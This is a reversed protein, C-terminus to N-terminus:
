KNDGLVLKIKGIVESPVFHAKILYDKAGLSLGEDVEDKKGLNTLLIIPIDKIEKDGKAAKLVELGNMKPLVIDLLVLDPRKEKIMALGVEGDMAQLVEFGELSLKTTYMGSLFGDDEVLLIKSRKKTESM